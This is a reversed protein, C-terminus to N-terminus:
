KLMKLNSICFSYTGTSSTNTPVHFQISLIHAPDFLHATPGPGKVLDWTITNTMNAVVPSNGYDKTAGWFDGGATGAETAVSPFEV